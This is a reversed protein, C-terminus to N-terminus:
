GSYEKMKKRVLAKRCQVKSVNGALGLKAVLESAKQPDPGKVATKIEKLDSQAEKILGRAARVVEIIILIKGIIM